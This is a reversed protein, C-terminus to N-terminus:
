CRARQWWLACIWNRWCSARYAGVWALLPPRQDKAAAAPTTKRGVSCDDARNRRWFVGTAGQFAGSEWRENDHGESLESLCPV